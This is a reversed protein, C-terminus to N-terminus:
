QILAGCNTLHHQAAKRGERLIEVQLQRLDLTALHKRLRWHGAIRIEDIKYTQRVTSLAGNLGKRGLTRYMKELTKDKTQMRM